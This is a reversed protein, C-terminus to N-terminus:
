WIGFVSFFCRRTVATLIAVNKSFTPKSIIGYVSELKTSRRRFVDPSSLNSTRFFDKFGGRRIKDVRHFSDALNTRTDTDTCHVQVCRVVIVPVQLLSQFEIWGIAAIHRCQQPVWFKSVTKMYRQIRAMIQLIRPRPHGIVARSLRWM